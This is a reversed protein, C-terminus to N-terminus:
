DQSIFSYEITNVKAKDPILHQRAMGGYVARWSFPLVDVAFKARQIVLSVYSVKAPLGFV